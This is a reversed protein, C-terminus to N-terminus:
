KYFNNRNPEVPVPVNWPGSRGGQDWAKWSADRAAVQQKYKAVAADYGAQDFGPDVQGSQFYSGLNLQQVQPSSGGSPTTGTTANTGTVAQKARLAERLINLQSDTAASKASQSLNSSAINAINTSVQNYMSSLDQNTQLLQRYNNEITALEVRTDRDVNALELRTANDMQSLQVRTQADLQATAMARQYEKDALQLSRATDKDALQLARGTEMDTQRFQNAAGASFAGAKNEADANALNVNTKLEADRLNATNQAQMTAYKAANEANTTNTSATGFTQADQQAIPLAKDYLANEAANIGSGIALSSNLLGRRNMEQDSKLTARRKAQQLLPSNSGIVKDLQNAVTANPDVTFKSADYGVAQPSASQATAATYGAVQDQKPALNLVGTAM